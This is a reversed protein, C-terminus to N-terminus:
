IESQVPDSPDETIMYVLFTKTAALATNFNVTNKELSQTDVTVTPATGERTHNSVTTGTAVGANGGITNLQLKKELGLKDGIGVDYTAGDDDQAIFSVSTVIKFAYSGTSTTSQNAIITIEESIVNDHIDTGVVTVVGAKVDATTGGPTVTVNRAFDMAEDMTSVTTISASDTAEASLVFDAEAAHPKQWMQKFIGGKVTILQGTRIKQGNDVSM